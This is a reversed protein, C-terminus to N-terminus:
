DTYLRGAQHSPLHYAQIKFLAPLLLCHGSGMGTYFKVLPVVNLNQNTSEYVYHIGLFHIASVINFQFLNM